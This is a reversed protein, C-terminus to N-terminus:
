LSCLSLFFFFNLNFFPFLFTSQFSVTLTHTHTTTSKKPHTRTFKSACLFTLLSFLIHLFNAFAFPLQYHHHHRRSSSIKQRCNRFNAFNFFRVRLFVLTQSVSFFYILPLTYIAVLLDFFSCFYHSLFRLFSLFSADSKETKEEPMCILNSLLAKLFIQM